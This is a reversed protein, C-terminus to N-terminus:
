ESVADGLVPFGPPTTCFVVAWPHCGVTTRSAVARSQVVLWQEGAAVDAPRQGALVRMTDRDVAPVLYACPAREGAVPTLAESPVLHASEVVQRGDTGVTGSPTALPVYACPGVSTSAAVGAPAPHVDVTRVHCVQEYDQAIWGADISDLECELELWSYAPLGVGPVGPRLANQAQEADQRARPLGVELDDVAQTRASSLEVTALLGHGVYLAVPLGVVVGTVLLLVKGVRNMDEDHPAGPHGCM